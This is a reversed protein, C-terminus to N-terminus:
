APEFRTRPSIELEGFQCAFRLFDAPTLVQNRFVMVLHESFALEITQFTREDM